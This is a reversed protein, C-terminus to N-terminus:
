ISELEYKKIIHSIDKKLSSIEQNQLLFAEHVDLSVFDDGQMGQESYDIRNVSSKSFGLAILNKKLDRLWQTHTYILGLRDIDWDEKSFFVRLEGFLKGRQFLYENLQYHSLCIVAKSHSIKGTHDSWFGYGNTKAKLRFSKITFHYVKENFERKIKM